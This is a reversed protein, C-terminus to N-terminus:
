SASGLWDPIERPVVRRLPQESRQQTAPPEDPLGALRRVRRRRDADIRAQLTTKATTAREHATDADTVARRAAHVRRVHRDARHEAAKLEDTLRQIEATLKEHHTERAELRAQAAPRRAAAVALEADALALEAAEIRAPLDVEIRTRLTAIQEVPAAELVLKELDALAEDRETKVGALDARATEVDSSSTLLEDLAAPVALLVLLARGVNMEHLGTSKIGTELREVAARGIQLIPAPNVGAAAFAEALDNAATDVDVDAENNLRAYLATEIREVFADCVSELTDPTTKTKTAKTTM